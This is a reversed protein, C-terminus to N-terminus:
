VARNKPLVSLLQLYAANHLMQLRLPSVSWTHKNRTKSNAPSPMTNQIANLYSKLMEPSWPQLLGNRSTEMQMATEWGLFRGQKAMGYLSVLLHEESIDKALSSVSSRHESKTKQDIRKQGKIFGLGQRRIQRRCM